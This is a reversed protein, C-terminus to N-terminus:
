RALVAEKRGDGRPPHDVERIDVSRNRNGRKKCLWCLDRGFGITEEMCGLRECDEFGFRWCLWDKRLRVCSGRCGLGLGFGM